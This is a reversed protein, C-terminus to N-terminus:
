KVAMNSRFSLDAVSQSYALLKATDIEIGLGPGTMPKALGGLGFAVPKTGIDDAMFFPAFSGEIHRLLHTQAFLRGAASLIATEGVNCGLQCAINRDKAYQYLRSAGLLGTSKSIKINFLLQEANIREFFHKAQVLNYVSEDLMLAIKIKQSLEPLRDIEEAILPEEISTVGFKKLLPVMRQAESFTWARNADVRIDVHDGLTNRILELSELDDVQGVKVKVERFANKLVLSLIRDKNQPTLFPIVASYVIPQQHETGLANALSDNKEKFLLDLLAIELASALSPLYHRKLLLQCFRKIDGVSRINRNQLLNLCDLANDEVDDFGIGNVYKRPAGEGFGVLGNDAHLQVVLAETCSRRKLNHNVSLTFPIEVKFLGM